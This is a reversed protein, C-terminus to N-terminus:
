SMKNSINMKVYKRKFFKFKKLNEFKKGSM